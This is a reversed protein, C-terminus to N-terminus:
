ITQLPIARTDLAGMAFRGAASDVEGALEPGTLTWRILRPALPGTPDAERYLFETLAEDSRPSTPPGPRVVMVHQSALAVMTGHTIQGGLLESLWMISSAAIPSKSEVVLTEAGEFLVISRQASPDLRTQRLALDVAMKNSIGWAALDTDTVPTSENASILSVVAALGAFLPRGAADDPLRDQREKSALTLRLHEISGALNNTSASPWTALERPVRELRTM